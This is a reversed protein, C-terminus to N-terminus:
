VNFNLVSQKLYVTATMITGFQPVIIELITTNCPPFLKRLNHDGGYLEFKDLVARVEEVMVNNSSIQRRAIFKM